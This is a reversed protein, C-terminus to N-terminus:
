MASELARRVGELDAVQWAMSDQQGRETQFVVKLLPTFRTKGLFSTPTEIEKISRLAVVYEKRPLWREFILETDTIIMTGSGRAQM